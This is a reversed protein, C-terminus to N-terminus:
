KRTERQNGDGNWLSYKKYQGTINGTEDLLIDMTIPFGAMDGKCYIQRPLIILPSSNQRESNSIHLDAEQEEININPTKDQFYLLKKTYNIEKEKIENKKKPIFPVEEKLGNFISWTHKQSMLNSQIRILHLTVITYAPLFHFM